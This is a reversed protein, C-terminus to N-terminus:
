YARIIKEQQVQVQVTDLTFETYRRFMAANVGADASQRSCTHSASADADGLRLWFM